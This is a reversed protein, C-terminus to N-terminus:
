IFSGLKSQSSKGLLEEKPIGLVAFIKEVGPIIQNTIYYDADYDSSQIEEPLKVKDRIRGKGKTVVYTIMSGPGVILGKSKMRQAAAVHPGINDYDDIDKSLQTRIAVKEVPIKGQKLDEIVKRVYALASDANQEKLIWTLVEKQVDKAIYSVNRRVTEFGTIKMKGKDDILAYKKKAGGEGSKTAVFIGSPYFGEYELEMVGPLDMNIKEVFKVADEQTKEGLGIFVSDTDSYLVKFG